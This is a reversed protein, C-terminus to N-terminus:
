KCDQPCNERTEACPCGLAQCVIEQCVGDGCKDECNKENKRSGFNDSCEEEWVRLCKNKSECWSYGAAVLCGHEDKEGGILQKSEKENLLGDGEQNKLFNWQYFYFVALVIVILIVGRFFILKENKKM